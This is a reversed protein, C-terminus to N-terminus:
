LIIVFLFLLPLYDDLLEMDLVNLHELCGNWNNLERVVDVTVEMNNLLYNKITNKM